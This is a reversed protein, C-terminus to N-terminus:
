LGTEGDNLTVDAFDYGNIIVTDEGSTDGLVDAGDGATYVYTDDGSGGQLDDDGLGGTITDNGAGGIITESADTGVLTQPEPLTILPEIEALSLTQDAFIFTEILGADPVEGGFTDGQTFSISGGDAFTFTTTAGDRTIVADAVEYTGFDITDSGTTEFIEDVGDGPNYVYIDDGGAGQLVDNGTGAEITEDLSTGTVIDDGATIQGAILLSAIQERTVSQDAFVFSDFRASPNFFFEVEVSDGNAFTILLNDRFLGGEGIIDGGSQFTADAFDYDPFEITDGAQDGFTALGVTDNGDGEFFLIRDAGAGGELYDAGAGGTLIDNGLGGNLEDDGVGGNVVDDGSGGDLDDNGADGNVVDNGAGGDVIDDGDRADITDDGDLGNITDAFETGTLTDDGETGDIPEFRERLEEVTVTRDRFEFLEVQDGGTDLAYPLSLTDGTAEFTITFSDGGDYTFTADAYDYDVFRITDTEGSSGFDDLEDFGFGQAFIYLDEGDGGELYDSGAGVFIVDNGDGAEVYDNGDGDRITDNGSGGYIDDNGAGGDLTDNGSGGDVEDSGDGGDIIDDGGLRELFDDGGLGNITDDGATGELDDSADTGTIAGGPFEIDAVNVTQDDFVLQEIGDSSGSLGGVVSVSDGNAFTVTFGNGVQAFTADALDRGQFVLQDTDGAGNDEVTDQGDGVAFVYSDSGDGGILTDNGLGGNLTEAFATGTLADDGDTAGDALVRNFIDVPELTIDDFVIQEIRSPNSASFTLLGGIVTISDGDDFSIRYDDTGDVRVITADDSNRGNLRIVDTDRDGQDDVVDEGDGVEFVYTDSGNGGILTDNGTGGDITESRNTGLVTDDGDTAQSNVVADYLADGTLTIDEFILREIQDSSSGIARNIEVSDGNAFSITYELVGDDERRIDTFTADAFNRGVFQLADTDFRGDDDVVDQGDGIEFVYLDSGDAGSLTDNGTGGDITDGRLSGIVTDDGDSAQSGIIFDYLAQGELTQDEFVVREINDERSGIARNVEVSDGNAFSITYELVGDSEQRLDTITADALDRGVFVLEDTDDRGNDDVIDQGDGIEFVYSDSGDGGSLTDNGTGGDLVDAGTTGFIVDDGDTVNLDVLTQRIAAYDLTVDDFVITEITDERGNLGSVVQVSDGNAFSITYSASGEDRTFTADALNRGVFEMTDNDDRGNDDVIDQGDGIEFVYRDSGDRGSLTDNGTGGDITDDAETGIVTDDGDSATADVIAQRIAATDLTVDDFIITEIQHNRDIIGSVVQVSDGNAFEITYTSSTGVRTFTADAFNRGVFELTDNDDRGNDDVIDQGDGIEFVYRDSGERGSLTDNGTGGDITDAFDTGLVTDDGDTVTSDIVAQRIAAADLTVDDFIITEIQDNRDGIGGVVQVSDGNAFDITYTASAGERSFTADAFDRGTFILTDNDDFGNDDVIDQGDGVNFIYSDSGDRGSLTDNGRLGIITEGTDTGNIIDDGNTANSTVIASRIGEVDLTQDDFEISEIRGFSNDLGDIVEVRDGNTFLITFTDSGGDRIFIADALDRGEFRITDTGQFGRDDVVDQGDGVAFIYTDNGTGGVLTDNGANSLFTDAGDQGVIVDDGASGLFTDAGVTGFTEDDGDTISLAVVAARLADVDLTIDDFVVREIDGFSADLGEVLTVSDGNAFSFTITDSGGDRSINADAFNRGNFQVTDTGQFGRDDVVDQGDGIEFVYTDNGTGGVLTDNGANSLFTDAGDQGVIVDDGASGLFTDAGVTGFTEDDGDTISLAVVAARLADVDLTIDDFVVREIDGFSADLGEVLTVSDGNAFSFTITDSGGDRIITADAFNRGNFQVTDTGNFGGDIVTDQGDGVNFVYTDDGTGGRLTDNGLAGFFTDAGDTGLLDDDGDTGVIVGEGIAFTITTSRTAGSLDTATIVVNLGGADGAGPTGSLTGTAPDFSLWAPLPNGGARAASLTLADGADVDVFLDEPLVLSFAEDTGVEQLGIIQTLTPADNAGNFTLTLSQAVSEGQDDTILYDVTIDLSQGDALAQIDANSRPSVLLDTGDFSFGDPLEAGEPLSVGLVADADLDSAGDLLDFRTGFDDESLTGTLAAAVVPADNTGTITITATQPVTAGESDVVDFTIEVELTEGAVLAQLSPDTGDVTLTSGDVSLGAILGAVNAVSLVDGQDVDSALALLDFDQSEDETAAFVAAESVTPADNTGTVTFTATQAVSGGQGDEVTYAFELVLDQGEALSQFSADSPDLSLSTGDFTVGAPLDSADFVISLTDGDVDSAGDLLAISVAAGDETAPASLAGAVTPADNTGTVTVTLSQPVSAGFQDVVDFTIEILQEEGAALGQFAASDADVTLVTGDLSVGDPLASLNAVSLVAGNDVDDAGSLLDVAYDSADETVAGSLAAAVTPTDNTGTVTFTVSQPVSGGQDDVVLYDVTVRQTEGQALSDYAADTPDFTLVNGAVSVGAPLFEAPSTLASLTDLGDVDSAGELLDVTVAAGGETAAESLAGQVTPADNTGTVTITATQPVTDGFEDVVDFTVTLVREEGASLDQFAANGADVSLTNGVVSVGAPLESLNAVSLVAGNDVDDAGALLDLLLSDGDETVAGSLAADVTPADNTGGVTLVLSQFSRAGQSDEVFFEVLLELVEGSALSDFAPDMPDLTLISGDVSVGAPLESILVVSLTDGADVDSAGSLLDVTIPADGEDALGSLMSGVTPADNSGTVTVTLIQPTAAGQEDVVDFTVTIVREEGAALDDFAPGESDVVLTNGDLTVGAPLESVNAVSLVAGNDVDAAGALLDIARTAVGETASAVLAAGVTPADNTGTVTLTLTQPVSAGFQDVVDFTVTIRQEEGAALADFAADTPDLTLVSGDMSVGAPLASLNAVSLVAGDDVDAAGSLLDVSVAADGEDAAASLAGSVTPTDNTGTVTLTLTQPASAGQQDVVDFTVTITQVEGEALSDFSPDTADLSLTAGDVSVGAPLASLNAVSLEAGNDVDTAGALLNVSVGEGGETAAASLAAGVTPADNTGTVTFTATQAVSGGEGDIVTYSVVLVSTEGDALSQFSPDAPDLTLTTGDLTVGAPLASVDAVSLRAGNDVDSAGALLDLAVAADDESAAATLAAAVTPADNTGTVTFTATQAVSGGQGDVVDYTVVLELVEGAALADFAANEPDLLLTDGDREVGAPLASLNAISLVDTADVDTAGALLDITAPANGEIGEAFLAGDLVPDDNTGTVTLTLTQPVSAGSADVVDYSLTIVQTEGAALSDFAPDNADVLLANGDRSVGAPLESLNAVSLVDGADVDSAGALLDVIVSVGGETVAESLAGDVVPTDNTGTVTLTVTQAVRGGAGDTITFDRTIVLTQGAALSDFAADSPDLILTTGDLSVGAPLAGLGSVSLTDGDLDSAGALLDVTVSADGEDAAASLAGDVTPTDNTGTVTFTATQAVSGGQGDTVTYAVTVDATEGAALGQFAADSADLSLTTGDLSVGAPLPADLAVSLADGDVDTAGDLLDISVTGGDETATASLAAGVTPADNAGTLSFTATRTATGGSADTLLLDVVIDLTEGAALSQYAADSPDLSLVNGDLSVGAPLEGVASAIVTDGDLDTVGATTDLSVVAGDETASASLNGDVDPGDNTGTVTFTATSVATAGQPDTVTYDISLTLVEGAALSQFAADSPDLTLTRGDFSVGAPLEGNVSAVLAGSEGNDADDAGDLLDLSVSAGDEVASASLAAEITPVDNTGTITLALTQTVRAGSSDVIDFTITYNGVEGAAFDDFNEDSPDVTLTTGDLTVFSPLFGPEVSLTDGDVDSAGALLDVTFVADGEDAAATLAAGVVPADNTGTVTFTATQVSSADTGDTVTFDVSVTTTEGAALGQFAADTPDLTLVNGDLSVGAPLTGTVTASLADGDVDTAGSLLDITAAEGDETANASLEASAVPADNTGTVTFVATSSVTGGAGDSVTFAVTVDVTEGASLSDFSPDTADLSLVSGDLSVGAPLAGDISVTLTDGDVDTAGSLLDLSASGGEDAAASLAGDVTPTDNTGTVTFTATQAVSGGQGDTVTYAVTVDATEGAALGQFAADSADLSLTTGDLSVGAPLPADLAVSLADGDVDTAGDLLDISVAGGDETASATLAAAVVPADNTGTVTITVTATQDTGDISYTFSVNQTEGAALQDFDSGADFTFSGDAALSLTGAAVDTLLTVTRGAADTDNSLVNGSTSGNEDVSAVDDVAVPDTTTGGPGADAPDVQVGNVFVSLAEVSYVTLAIATFVFTGRSGGDIYSQYAAFDDAVAQSAFEDASLNLVLTDTGSGGSYYDNRGGDADSSDFVLVDDGWQGYVRDFGAGGDLVDNGSGGWIRDTGDNGLLTDNGGNGSLFDNGTGGDVFDNGNGAFVRDAGAGGYVTDHGSGAFVVDNGSGALVYDSGSGSFIVDSGAGTEIRDDGRGSFVIDRGDTGLVTDAGYGGFFFRAM